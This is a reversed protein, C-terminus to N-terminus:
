GRNALVEKEYQRIEVMYSIGAPVGQQVCYADWVAGFPM